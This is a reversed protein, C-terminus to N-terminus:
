NSNKFWEDVTMINPPEFQNNKIFDDACFTEGAFSFNMDNLHKRCAEEFDVIFAEASEYIVPHTNTSWYTCDDSVIYEIVLRM